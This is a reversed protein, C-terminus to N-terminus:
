NETKLKKKWYWWLVGATVLAAILDAVPTAFWVGNLGFLSPFVLLLPTLFLLQRTMSLFVSIGAKGISQFFNTTVVQFGVIPCCLVYIRLGKATIGILEESDTFWRAIFRPFCEAALFGIVAVATAYYVTLKFAEIARDHQKAGWNYGVIPQMGQTFGFMIM